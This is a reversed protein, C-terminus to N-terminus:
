DSASLGDGKEEELAMLLQRASNVTMILAIEVNSANKPSASMIEDTELSLINSCLTAIMTTTDPPTHSGSDPGSDSAYPQNASEFLCTQTDSSCNM